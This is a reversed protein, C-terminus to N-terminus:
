RTSSGAHPSEGAPSPVGPEPASGGATNGGPRRAAASEPGAAGVGRGEGLIGGITDAGGGDLGPPGPAGSAPGPAGGPSLHEGANGKGAHPDDNGLISRGVVTTVLENRVTIQWAIAALVIAITLGVVIPAIIRRAGATRCRASAALRNWVRIDAGPSAVGRWRERVLDPLVRTAAAEGDLLPAHPGGSWLTTVVTLLQGPTPRERPNRALAARVLPLLADPVGTLDPEEELVRAAVAGPTGRGFPGRGTAAYVVLAGWAFVDSSTTPDAGGYREPAIWGPVGFLEGTRAIASAEVARDIGFDVVRPGQSALIVSDPELRHHAAGTAHIARLAEAAGAAAGLLLDGSLPGVEQIHRALTMGPVYEIALWPEPARPDAGVFAPACVGRMRRVSEAERAFRERFEADAAFEPHVTKVAVPRGRPDVAALVTGTADVALRGVVRHPGVREPDQDAPPAVGAQTFLEPPAQM